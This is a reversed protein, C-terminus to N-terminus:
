VTETVERFHDIGVTRGNRRRYRPFNQKQGKGPVGQVRNAIGRLSDSSENGM